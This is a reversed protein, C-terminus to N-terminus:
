IAKQWPYVLRVETDRNQTRSSVSCFLIFKWCLFYSECFLLVCWFLLKCWRYRLLQSEMGKMQSQDGDGYLDQDAEDGGIELSQELSKLLNLMDAEERMGVLNDLGLDKFQQDTLGDRCFKRGVEKLLKNQAKTARKADELMKKKQQDSM